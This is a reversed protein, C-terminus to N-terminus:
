ADANRWADFRVLVDALQARTIAGGPNLRAGDTAAREGGTQLGAGCAWQMAGMAYPAIDFADDYSLINTDEGVSVDCGKYMAYHWLITVLQEHTLIDEPGFMGNGYGCVIGNEAAWGIAAAAHKEASVDAFVQTVPVEPRGELTWLARPVTERSVSGEPRFYGNEDNSLLGHKLAYAVGERYWQVQPFAWLYNVSLYKITARLDGLHQSM